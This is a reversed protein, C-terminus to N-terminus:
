ENLKLALRAIREGLATCLTAEDKSIPKEGKLGSWHSAGYPTGGTITEQLSPESYPLGALLMGHHMLPIMMSTLTTEQGGHLSSTSCFVGAPKGILAGKAWLGGTQDLFHKLPGAMNGFRTPSGIILGACNSLEDLTCYPAGTDPISPKTKQTEPSVSPVTRLAARVGTVQEVGQSIHQAMEQTHGQRSYFLVVVYPQETAGM